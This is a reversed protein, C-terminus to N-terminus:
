EKRKETSIEAERLLQNLECVREKIKKRLTAVGLSDTINLADLLTAQADKLQGHKQNIEIM